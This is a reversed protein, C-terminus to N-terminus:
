AGFMSMHNARGSTSLVKWQTITTSGRKGFMMGWLWRCALRLYKWFGRSGSPQKLIFGCLSLFVISLNGEFPPM